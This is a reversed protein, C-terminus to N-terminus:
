SKMMSSFFLLVQDDCKNGRFSVDVYILYFFLVNEGMVQYSEGYIFVVAVLLAFLCIFLCVLVFM